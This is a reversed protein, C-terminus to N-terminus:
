LMGSYLVVRDGNQLQLGRIMLTVRGLGSFQAIKSVRGLRPDIRGTALESDIEAIIRYIERCYAVTAYILQSCSSCPFERRLLINHWM